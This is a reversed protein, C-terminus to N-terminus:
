NNKINEWKLKPYDDGEVKEFADGLTEALEKLEEKNRGRTGGLDETGSDNKISENLYYCNVIDDVDMVLGVLGGIHKTENDGVADDITVNGSSYSSIMECRLAGVLGGATGGNMGLTCTVLGSNYSNSIKQSEIETIGVLGGCGSAGYIEGVNFCEDM